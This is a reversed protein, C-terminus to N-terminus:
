TTMYYLEFYKFCVKFKIFEYNNLVNMENETQSNCSILSMIQAVETSCSKM